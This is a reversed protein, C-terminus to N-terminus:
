LCGAHDKLRHRLAVCLSHCLASHGDEVAEMSGADVTVVLDVLDGVKGGTPGTLAVTRAGAARAAQAAALINPSNGSASILLAVDDPRVLAALQEAFVCEYNRDNGWATILPVNDTLPMVRFRPLGDQYTGKTLDCAFHSATAASGGNGIPFVTGGRLYCDFLLDAVAVVSNVDLRRLARALADYYATLDSAVTPATRAM